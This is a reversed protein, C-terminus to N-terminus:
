TDTFQGRQISRQTYYDFSEIQVSLGLSIVIEAGQPLCSVPIFFSLAQLSLAGKAIFVLSKKFINIEGNKV